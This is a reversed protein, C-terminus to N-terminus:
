FRSRMLSMLECLECRSDVEIGQSLCIGGAIEAVTGPEIAITGLLAFGAIIMACSLSLGMYKYKRFALEGASIALLPFSSCNRM